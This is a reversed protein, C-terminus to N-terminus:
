AEKGPRARHRSIEKKDSDDHEAPPQNGDGNSRESSDASVEWPQYISLLQTEDFDMVEELELLMENDQRDKASFTVAPASVPVLTFYGIALVLTLAAAMAALRLVSPPSFLATGRWWARRSRTEIKRWVVDNFDAVPELLPLDDLLEWGQRVQRVLDRCEPCQEMHEKM